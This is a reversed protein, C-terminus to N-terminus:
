GATPQITAVAEGALQSVSSDTMQRDAFFRVPRHDDVFSRIRALLQEERLLGLTRIALGTVVADESDLYNPLYHGARWKQLLAPRAQAIRALGWMLGRQLAPLELFFGDERMYAVPMHGYEAAMTEQLVIIEAMAEPAGWGIGGSEDNLSWMLRRMVVRCSELDQDALRAVTVGMAAIAHWHINEDTHCLGAFLPAILGAAPLKELAALTAELDDDRLRRIIRRKEQITTM